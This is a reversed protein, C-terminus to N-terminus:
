FPLDGDDDVEAFDGSTNTGVQFASGEKSIQVGREKLTLSENIVAQIWEPLKPFCDWTEADDMDFHYQERVDAVQAGKMLKGIAGIDAYTKDNKTTNTVTIM